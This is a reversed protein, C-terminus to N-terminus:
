TLTPTVLRVVKLQHLIQDRDALLNADADSLAALADIAAAIDYESARDRAARLSRRLEGQAAEKQGSRALAVGAVRTLLPRHRDNCQLERRAIELAKLPDGGLAEAEALLARGFDTYADVRFQRLEAVSREL